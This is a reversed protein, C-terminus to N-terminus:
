LLLGLVETLIESLTQILLAQLLLRLVQTLIQLLLGLIQRLVQLLLGEVHRARHSLVPEATHVDATGILLVGLIRHKARASSTLVRM